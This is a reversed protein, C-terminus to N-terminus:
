GAGRRVITAQQGDGHERSFVNVILSRRCCYAHVVNMDQGDCYRTIQCRWNATFLLGVHHFEKPLKILDAKKTQASVRVDMNGCWLLRFCSIGSCM